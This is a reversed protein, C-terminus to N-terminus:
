AGFSEKLKKIGAEIRYSVTRKPIGLKEAIEARSLNKRFYLKFIEQDKRNLRKLGTSLAERFESEEEEEILRDLPDAASEDANGDLDGNGSLAERKSEGRLEANRKLQWMANMGIAFVFSSDLYAEEKMVAYGGNENTEYLIRSFGDVRLVTWNQDGYTYFGNMFVVLRGGGEYQKAFFVQDSHLNERVWDRTPLPINATEPLVDRLQRLTLEGKRAMSQAKKLTIKEMTTEKGGKPQRGSASLFRNRGHNRAPKGGNGPLYLACPILPTLTRNEAMGQSPLSDM